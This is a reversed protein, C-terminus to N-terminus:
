YKLSTAESDETKYEKQTTIIDCKNKNRSIYHTKKHERIKLNKEKNSTKFVKTCHVKTHKKFKYKSM